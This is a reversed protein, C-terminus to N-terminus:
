ESPTDTAPPQTLTPTETVSAMTGEQTPTVSGELTSTETPTPTPAPATATMCLISAETATPMLVENLFTLLSQEYPIIAGCPDEALLLDDGYGQSSIAFKYCSDWIAAGCLESFSQYAQAWDLGVHSNAYLYFEASRRWSLAQTDLDQFREALTLDYIGQEHFGSLIKDLGRNRLGTFMLQNIEATRYEPNDARLDILLSLGGDWDGRGIAASAAAYHSEISSLDPTPTPTLQTPTVLPTPTLTPQNLASRALNLLEIADVFNPDVSLIFEARQKALDFRGEMLDKIGLSYQELLAQNHESEQAAARLAQGQKLGTYV